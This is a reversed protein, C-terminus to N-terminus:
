GGGPTGAGGRSDPGRRYDPLVSAPLVCAAASLLGVTLIVTAAPRLIAFELLRIYAGTLGGLERPDGSEGGVGRM